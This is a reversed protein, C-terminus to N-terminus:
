ERGEVQGLDRLSSLFYGLAEASPETSVISSLTGGPRCLRPMKMRQSQARCGM